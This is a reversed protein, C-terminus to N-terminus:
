WRARSQAQATTSTHTSPSRAPLAVFDNSDKSTCPQFTLASERAQLDNSRAVKKSVDRPLGSPETQLAGKTIQAQEGKRGTHVLSQDMAVVMRFTEWRGANIETLLDASSLGDRLEGTM